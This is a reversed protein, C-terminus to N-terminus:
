VGTPLANTGWKTDRRTSGGGRGSRIRRRSPPRRRGGFRTLTDPTVRVAGAVRHLLVEQPVAVFTTTGDRATRRYKPLWERKFEEWVIRLEDWTLLYITKRPLVIYALVGTAAEKAMWGRGLSGDRQVHSYDLAVDPLV